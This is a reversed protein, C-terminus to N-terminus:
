LLPALLHSSSLHSFPLTLLTSSAASIYVTFFLFSFFLRAKAIADDSDNSLNALKSLRGDGSWSCTPIFIRRIRYFYGSKEKIFM